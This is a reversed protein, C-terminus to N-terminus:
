KLLLALALRDKVKLKKYIHQAHAKVTRSTINLSLAIENYTYSDKLLEAVEKERTTFLQFYEDNNKGKDEIELILKSTLSPHLWILNDKITEIATIFFNKKMLANGYAKAGYKILNMATYVNPTRDLVFVFNSLDKLSNIIKREKGRLALYNVLIISSSFNFLDEIDDVIIVNKDFVSEWHNLLNIDDSYLVIKM